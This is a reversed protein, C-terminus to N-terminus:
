SAKPKKYFHCAALIFVGAILDLVIWVEKSLYFPILPNYLIGMIAWPVIKETSVPKTEKLEYIEKIACISVVWKLGQYYAYPLKLPAIFLLVATIVELM